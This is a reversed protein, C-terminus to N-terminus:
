RQSISEVVTFPRVMGLLIHPLGTAPDPVFCLAVYEGVEFDFEVFNSYGTAMVQAGGVFEFPAKGQQENQVFTMVYAITKGEKLKGVALEHPQVGANFVKWVQEGAAIETPVDYGFDLMQVKLDAQPAETDNATTAAVVELPRIMGLAYHPIGDANPILCLAVYLGPKELNVTVSQSVGPQLVGVGGVTELLALAGLGDRELSAVLEEYTVGDNIRAIKLHHDDDGINEFELTVLGTEITYQGEFAYDLGKYIVEPVTSAHNHEQAFTTSFAFTSFAFLAFLIQTIKRTLM